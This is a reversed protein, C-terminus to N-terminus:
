DSGPELNEQEVPNCKASFYTPGTGTSGFTNAARMDAKEPFTRVRTSAADEEEANATGTHLGRQQTQGVPKGLKVDFDPLLIPITHSDMENVTDKLWRLVRISAEKDTPSWHVM